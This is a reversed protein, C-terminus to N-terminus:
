LKAKVTVNGFNASIQEFSEGATSPHTRKTFDNVESWKAEVKEITLEEDTRFSVGFSRAWRVKAIWCSGVEFIQGTQTTQTSALFIVLPAIYAPKLTEVMEAPWVTKTMGTGANPAISNVLINSRKGELALSNSLGILGAKAAAYNTQGFNGYLGVASTTNIIRGFKQKLFHPWAEKCTKYTGRLHVNLVKRFDSPTMKVFSKDILIGANNVLIHIEKYNQIATQIILNGNEVSNYDAVATQGKARILAM